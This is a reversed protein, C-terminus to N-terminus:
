HVKALCLFRGASLYLVAIVPLVVTVRRAINMKRTDQSM